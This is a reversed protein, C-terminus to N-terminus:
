PGAWPVAPFDADRVVSAICAAGGGSSRRRRLGFSAPILRRMSGGPKSGSLWHICYDITYGKREWATCLGGPKDHMELVTSRSGNMQAYCGVSLGVIGGGIVILPRDTSVRAETM